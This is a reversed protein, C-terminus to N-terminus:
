GRKGEPRRAAAITKLCHDHLGKSARKALWRVLAEHRDVSIACLGSVAGWQLSSESPAQLLRQVLGPPRIWAVLRPEVMRGGLAGVSWGLAAAEAPDLKSGRELRGLLLNATDADGQEGLLEIARVRIGMAGHDLLEVLRPLDQVSAMAKGMLELALDVSDDAARMALAHGLELRRMPVANRLTQALTWAPRDPLSGLALILRDTETRAYTAVLQGAIEGRKSGGDQALVEVLGELHDGPIADLVSRIHALPPADPRVALDLVGRVTRTGSFGQLVQDVREPDVSRLAVLKKLLVMVRDLEGESLLFDRVEGLLQAVDAVCTPDTPDAVVELLELVLRMSLEPLVDLEAEDLLDDIKSPSMARYRVPAPELVQPIPLDWDRPVEVSGVIGQERAAKADDGGVVTNMADQVFGQVAVIDIYEFEAKWLLTVLDDEAHAGGPARVALTELLTFLEEWGVGPRLSLRRVGDRFMRFALSRERDRELYVVEGDFVLEFPRVELNLPDHEGVAELMRDRFDILFQVVAKNRLDYLTFSRAARSLALLANNVQKGRESRGLRTENPTQATGPLQITSM